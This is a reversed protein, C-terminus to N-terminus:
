SEKKACLVAVRTSDRLDTVVYMAPAIRMEGSRGLARQPLHRGQRLGMRTDHSSQRTAHHAKRQMNSASTCTSCGTEGDLATTCKGKSKTDKALATWALAIALGPLINSLKM